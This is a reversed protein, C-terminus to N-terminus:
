STTVLELCISMRGSTSSHSNILSLTILLGQGSLSSAQVKVM